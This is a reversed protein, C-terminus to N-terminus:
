RELMWEEFTCISSEKEIFLALEEQFDRLVGTREASPYRNTIAYCIRPSPPDDLKRKTFVPNQCLSDAVSAPAIAWHDPTTLYHQLMSGTNVTILPDEAPSWHRDHWIAFDPGWNLYVENSKALIDCSVPEVSSSNGGLAYPSDSRCILYMLERYVPKSVLDPYGIESFVFGIDAVHIQVLRHIENSHHTFISLKLDPHRHLCLQYFPLLTCNNVADVGAIALQRNPAAKKINQTEKWLFAWQRAVPIFEQGFATLTAGRVGKARSILAEGLEKELQQLRNSVTSQSVFLEESAASLTGLEAIALFAEIQEYTM